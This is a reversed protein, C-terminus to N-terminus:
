PMLLTKDKSFLVHLQPPQSHILTEELPPSHIFYKGLCLPTGHTLHNHPAGAYAAMARDFRILLM